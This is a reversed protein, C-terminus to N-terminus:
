SIRLNQGNSIGKPVNVTETVKENGIGSGKCTPCPTKITSGLGKCKSCSMQITMPGIM